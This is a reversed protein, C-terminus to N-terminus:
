LVYIYMYMYMYAKMLQPEMLDCFFRFILKIRNILAPVKVSFVNRKGVYHTVTKTRFRNVQTIVGYVTHKTPCMCSSYM